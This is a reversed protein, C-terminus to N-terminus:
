VMSADIQIRETGFRLDATARLVLLRVVACLECREKEQARRTWPQTKATSAMGISAGIMSMAMFIVYDGRM